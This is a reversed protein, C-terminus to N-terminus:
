VKEGHRKTAEKSIQQCAIEGMWSQLATVALATAIGIVMSAVMLVDLSNVEM